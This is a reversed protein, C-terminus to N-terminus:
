SWFYRLKPDFGFSKKWSVIKNGNEATMNKIHRCKQTFFPYSEDAMYPLIPFNGTQKTTLM